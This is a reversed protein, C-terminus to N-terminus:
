RNRGNKALVLIARRVGIGPMLGLMFASKQREILFIKLTPYSLTLFGHCLGPNV